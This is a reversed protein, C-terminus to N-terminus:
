SITQRITERTFNQLTANEINVISPLTHTIIDQKGMIEVMPDCSYCFVSGDTIEKGCKSCLM